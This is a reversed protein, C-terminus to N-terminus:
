GLARVDDLVDFAFSLACDDEEALAAFALSFIAHDMLKIPNVELDYTRYAEDAADAIGRLASDDTSGAAWDEIIEIRPDSFSGLMKALARVLPRRDPSSALLRLAETDM